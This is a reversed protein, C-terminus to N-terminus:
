PWKTICYSTPLECEETHAM